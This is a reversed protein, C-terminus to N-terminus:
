ATHHTTQPRHSTDATITTTGSGATLPQPANQPQATSRATPGAASCPASSASPRATPRPRYPRTRLHRIGLRPLRARPDHLPLRSGNDTMLARRHHRPPAYFAIARRLFGIATTAKEDACCKPTPWAPPTTSPSTCTNGASPRRPPRRGRRHPHATYHQRRRHPRTQRRRGPHPRAEQRRHPDARGAARARLAAAPELGLRGLRGDRDAHLVGSVTSLPWRSCSPSRRAPSACGACRRSRRSRASMPATPSRARRRPAIWCVREGEARYRRGVELVDPRQSRGGRGGEDITWGEEVVM